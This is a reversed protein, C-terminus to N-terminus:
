NQFRGLVDAHPTFDDERDFHDFIAGFDIVLLNGTSLQLVKVPGTAVKDVQSLTVVHGYVVSNVFGNVSDDRGSLEDRDTETQCDHNSVGGLLPLIAIRAATRM